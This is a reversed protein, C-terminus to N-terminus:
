ESLIPRRAPTESLFRYENAKEGLKPTVRERHELFPDPPSRFIGEDAATM